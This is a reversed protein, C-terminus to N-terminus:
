RPCLHNPSRKHHSFVSCHQSAMRFTQCKFLSTRNFSLTLFLNRILTLTQKANLLYPKM